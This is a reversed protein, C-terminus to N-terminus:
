LRMVRPLLWIATAILLLFCNRAGALIPLLILMGDKMQHCQLSRLSATSLRQTTAESISSGKSLSAARLLRRPGRVHLCNRAHM